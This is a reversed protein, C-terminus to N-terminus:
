NIFNNDQELAHKEPYPNKFKRKFLKSPIRIAHGITAYQSNDSKYNDSIDAMSVLVSYSSCFFNIKSNCFRSASASIFITSPSFSRLFNCLVISTHSECKFARIIRKRLFGKSQGEKEELVPILLSCGLIKYLAAERTQHHQQLFSLQRKGWQWPTVQSLFRSTVFHHTLNINNM